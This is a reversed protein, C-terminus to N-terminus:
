LSGSVHYVAVELEESIGWILGNGAGKWRNGTCVAFSTRASDPKVNTTWARSEVGLM